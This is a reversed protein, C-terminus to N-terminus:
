SGQDLSEVGSIEIVPNCLEEHIVMEEAKIVNHLGSICHETCVQGWRSERSHGSFDHTGPDNPFERFQAQARCHPHLLPKLPFTTLFIKDEHRGTICDSSVSLQCSERGPVWSVLSLQGSLLKVRPDSPLWANDVLQSGEEAESLEAKRYLCQCSPDLRPAGQCSDSIRLAKGVEVGMKLHIFSLVSEKNIVYEPPYMRLGLLHCHCSMLKPHADCLCVCARVRM